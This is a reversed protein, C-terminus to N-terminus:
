LNPTAEPTVETPPVDNPVGWGHGHGMGPHGGPGGGMGPRGGFGSRGDRGGFTVPESLFTTINESFNALREDAQEQTIRGAEVAATLKESHAAVLADVVTTLEVGKEEALEAVTQGDQLATVLEAEEIGLAEAIVTVFQNGRGIFDGGMGLHGGFNMPESLQTTLNERYTELAAATQESRAAVLADVITTLEIGKEEALEAVTQGDQLATVLEAEEIGLTEAIISLADVGRGGGFGPRGGPSQAAVSAVGFAAVAVVLSVMVIWKMRKM